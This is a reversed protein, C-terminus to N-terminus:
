LPVTATLAQIAIVVAVYAFHSFLRKAWTTAAWTPGAAGKPACLFLGCEWLVRGSTLSGPTLLNNEPASKTYTGSPCIM